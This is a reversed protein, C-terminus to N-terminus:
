NVMAFIKEANKVCNRMVLKPILLNLKSICNIHELYTLM